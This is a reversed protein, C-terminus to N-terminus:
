DLAKRINTLTPQHDERKAGETGTLLAVEYGAAGLLRALDTADNEPYDLPKLKNHDYDKIGVLIAYRKGEPPAALLINLVASLLASVLFGRAPRLLAKMFMGPSFSSGTPIM